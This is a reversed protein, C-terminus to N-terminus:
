FSHDEWYLVIGGVVCNEEQSSVFAFVIENSVDTQFIYPEYTFM